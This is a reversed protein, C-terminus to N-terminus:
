FIIATGRWGLLERVTKALRLKGLAEVWLIKIIRGSEHELCSGVMHDEELRKHHKVVLFNAVLNINAQRILRVTEVFSCHKERV